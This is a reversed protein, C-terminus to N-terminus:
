AETEPLKAGPNKDDALQIARNIENQKWKLASVEEELLAIALKRQEVENKTDALENRLQEPTLEDAMSQAIDRNRSKDTIEAPTLQTLDTRVPGRSGSVESM